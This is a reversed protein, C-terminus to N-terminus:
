IKLKFIMRYKLDNKKTRIIFTTLKKDYTIKQYEVKVKKNQILYM